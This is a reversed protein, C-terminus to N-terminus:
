LTNPLVGVGSFYSQLLLEMNKCSWEVFEVFVYIQYVHKALQMVGARPILNKITFLRNYGQSHPRM